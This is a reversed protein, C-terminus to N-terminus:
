KHTLGIIDEIKKFDNEKLWEETEKMIQSFVNVSRDLVATGVGIGTAGAMMMEILDRGTTVGGCGIIPVKVAKYLDFVCRVAIPRLAPGSVGGMGFGLVPKYTDIDIIMGPGMTNGAVIADAGAAEAAKGVEVLNENPSLKIWIPLDTIEKLTKTIKTAMEPTHQGGMTGYGPTHPCSLPVEIAKFNCNKLENYVAKFDDEKQGIISLIVP